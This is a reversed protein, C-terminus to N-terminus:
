VHAVKPIIIKTPLTWQTGISKGGSHNETEYSHSETGMNVYESPVFFSPDVSQALTEAIPIVDNKDIESSTQRTKVKQKAEPTGNLKIGMHNYKRNTQPEHMNTLPKLINSRANNIPTAISLGKMNHIIMTPPTLIPIERFAQDNSDKLLIRTSIRNHIPSDNDGINKLIIRLKSRQTRPVAGIEPLKFNIEVENILLKLPGSWILQIQNGNKWSLTQLEPSTTFKVVNAAHGIKHLKFLTRVNDRRFAIYIQTNTAILNCWKNKMYVILHVILIIAIIALIVGNTITLNRTILSGDIIAGTPTETVPKNKDAYAPRAILTKIIVSEVTNVTSTTIIQAAALLRYNYMLYIIAPTVLIYLILVLIPTLIDGIWSSAEGWIPTDSPINGDQKVQKEYEALVKQLTLSDAKDEQQLQKNNRTFNALDPIQLKIPAKSWSQSNILPHSLNFKHLIVNNYTYRITHIQSNNVCFTFPIDIRQDQIILTSRCPIEILCLKCADHDSVSKDHNVLRYKAAMTSIIFQTGQIHRIYTRPLDKTTYMTKCTRTIAEHKNAFLAALCSETGIKVPIPHACIHFKGTEACSQLDAETLYIYKNASRSVGLYPNNELLTTYGAYKSEKHTHIPVPLLTVKFLDYIVERNALPITLTIYLSDNTAVFHHFGNEYYYHLDSFVIKFTPHNQM